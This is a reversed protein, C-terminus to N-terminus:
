TGAVLAAMDPGLMTAELEKEMPISARPGEGARRM